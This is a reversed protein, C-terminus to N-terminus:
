QGVAHLTVDFVLPANAPIGSGQPPHAGYAQDAPIVLRRKGGVKMGPIGETWGKIVQSLGFSVPQGSDLSSQFITGDAALAGTYDVTVTDGPKVEDGTGVELDIKQLAPVDTVPDFGALKTGQLKQSSQNNAATDQNVTKAEKNDVYFQWIVFISVAFSTAFFLIAMILAIIRDRPRTEAM